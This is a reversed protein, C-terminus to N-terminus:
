EAGPVMATMLQVTNALEAAAPVPVPAASAVVVRDLRAVAAALLQVKVQALALQHRAHVQAISLTVSRNAIVDAMKEADYTLVELAAFEPETPAWARAQKRTLLASFASDPAQTVNPQQM